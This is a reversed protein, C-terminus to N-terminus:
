RCKVPKEDSMENGKRQRKERREEMSAAMRNAATTGVPLKSDSTYQMTVSGGVTGDVNVYLDPEEPAQGFRDVALVM